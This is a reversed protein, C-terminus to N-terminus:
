TAGGGEPDESVARLIERFTINYVLLHYTGDAEGRLTDGGTKM